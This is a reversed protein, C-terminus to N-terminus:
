SLLLVLSMNAPMSVIPVYTRGAQHSVDRECNCCRNTGNPEGVGNWDWESFVPRGGCDCSGVTVGDNVVGVIIEAKGAM